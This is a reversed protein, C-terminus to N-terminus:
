GEFVARAAGHAIDDLVGHFAEAERAREPSVSVRRNQRLVRVDFCNHVSPLTIFPARSTSPPLQKYDGFLIVHCDGFSDADRAAPRLTHDVSSMCNEVATWADIDLMSFEDVLLVKLALLAAVKPHSLKALDLRSVMDGDLDFLAHLTSARVDTGEIEINSAAIGTPAAARVALGRLLCHLYVTSLLYSKGTGASAQVLLRLPPGRELRRVIHTYVRWQDTEVNDSSAGTRLREERLALERELDARTKAGEGAARPAGDGDGPSGDDPENNVLRVVGREQEITTMILKAADESLQGSAHYENVKARLVETPLGRCPYAAYVRFCVRAEFM